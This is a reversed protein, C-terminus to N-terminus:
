RSRGKLAAQIRKELEARDAVRFGSHEFVIKGDADILLSTPMGKIRYSRPTDGTSDFAVTFAAPTEALFDRADKEHADLNIGVIRLGQAGYRAHMENMWPFSQRCPGCWSAWFDVYVVNGRLNSLRVKGGTGSLEFDPAVGGPEAAHAAAFSICSIGCVAAAIHRLSLRRM